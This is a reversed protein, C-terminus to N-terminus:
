ESAGGSSGGKIQEVAWSHRDALGDAPIGPGRPLSPPSDEGPHHGPVDDPVLRLRLVEQPAKRGDDDAVAIRRQRAANRVAAKAAGRLEDSRTPVRLRKM